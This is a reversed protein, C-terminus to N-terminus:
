EQVNTHGELNVAKWTHVHTYVHMYTQADRIHTHLCNIHAFTSMHSHVHMDMCMIM